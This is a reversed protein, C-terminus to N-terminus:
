TGLKARSLITYVPGDPTLESSMVHIEHVTIESAKWNSYKPLIQSLDTDHRQGKVRGLTLHPKYQREERRYCGMELLPEEIGDHISVIEDAGEGVGAWLVRPRRPNPFCGISEITMPFEAHQATVEAVANCIDPIAIMDVEGLFLLTIHLNDAEVWKARAGDKILSEQLSVLRDRNKKGVDIAIFTRVRKM